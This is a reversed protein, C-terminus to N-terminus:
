EGLFFARSPREPTPQDDNPLNGLSRKRKAPPRAREKESAKNPKRDGDDADADSADRARGGLANRLPDTEIEEDVQLPIYGLERVVEHRSMFGQEVMVAYGQAERYPDLLPIRPATWDDPRLGPRPLKGALYAALAFREAIREMVMPIFELWQFQEVMARFEIKGMRGSTFNVQSYDGTLQEYTIDSGAAIARLDVRVHEEYGESAAPSAFEVREGARLYNISGPQMGELRPPQRGAGGGPVPTIGGAGVGQFGDGEMWVFAAFCAEIKKRVLEAEQYEGLDRARWISVAFHPLGRVTGPRDIVRYLHIIDAAPVFRSVWSRPVAEVEGPHHDFLWYGTRKGKLNFQVGAICFGGDVPGTRSTDLHDAELVRLQLPVELGAEPPCYEFRLLVEGSEWAARALQAQIGALNLQEGADCQRAWRSWLAGHAPNEYKPVIGTSSIANQVLVNLARKIYGNNRVLDRSRNRLRALAPVLEANGSGGGPQRGAGRPGRLSAGDFGRAIERARDYHARAAMRRLGRAPAFHGILRDM